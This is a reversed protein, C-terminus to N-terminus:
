RTTCVWRNVKCHSDYRKCRKKAKWKANAVSRGWDAGWGGNGGFAIAGCANKFWTAIKCDGAHQRCKALAVRQAKGRSGYDFSWGLAKSSPSVAIAGYYNRAHAISATTTIIFAALAIFSLCNTITKRHM